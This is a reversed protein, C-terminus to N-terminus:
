VNGKKKKLLAARRMKKKAEKSLPAIFDTKVPELSFPKYIGLNKEESKKFTRDVKQIARKKSGM